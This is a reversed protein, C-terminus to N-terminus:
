FGTESHIKPKRERDDNFLESIYEQWRTIINIESLM